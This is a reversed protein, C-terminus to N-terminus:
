FSKFTKVKPKELADPYQSKIFKRGDDTPSSFKVQASPFMEKLAQIMKANITNRRYDKRVSMMDVYIEQETTNAEILGLIHEQGKQQFKKKWVDTIPNGGSYFSGKPVILYPIMGQKLQEAAEPTDMFYVLTYGFPIFGGERHERLVVINEKVELYPTEELPKDGAMVQKNPALTMQPMELLLKNLFSDFKKTM